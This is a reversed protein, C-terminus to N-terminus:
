GAACLRLSLNLRKVVCITWRIVGLQPYVYSAKMLSMPSTMFLVLEKKKKEKQHNWVLNSYSYFCIFFPHLMSLQKVGSEFLKESSSESMEQVYNLCIFHKM